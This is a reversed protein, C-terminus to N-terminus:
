ANNNHEATKRRGKIRLALIHASLLPCFCFCFGTFFVVILTIFTTQVTYGHGVYLPFYTFWIIYYLISIVSLIMNVISLFLSRVFVSLLGCFGSLVFIIGHIFMPLAKVWVLPDNYDIQIRYYSYCQAPIFFTGVIMLGFYMFLYGKEVGDADRFSKEKNNEDNPPSEREEEGNLVVRTPTEDLIPM